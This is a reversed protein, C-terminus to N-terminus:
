TQFLVHNQQIKGSSLKWRVQFRVDSLMKEKCHHDVLFIVVIETVETAWIVSSYTEVTGTFRLLMAPHDPLAYHTQM